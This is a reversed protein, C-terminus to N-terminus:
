MRTQGEFVTSCPGTMEITNNVDPWYIKLRGGPLNVNVRKDLLGQVHGIAAAACAGTGCARTEGVGREFVRLNINERDILQMFGVNVRNPFRTHNEIRPGLFEVNATEINEVLLLVHPNGIAAAGVSYHTGEVDLQYHTAQADAIFPINRPELDVIGMQVTVESNELLTLTIIGLATNMKITTNRTLGREYVFRAVCRAGNGCHEVEYGDANYIRYDFEANVVSPKEIILLQDFGIGTHRDSLTKIQDTSLNIKGDLNDLVIFDNGLGHMKTFNIQKM